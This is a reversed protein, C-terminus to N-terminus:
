IVTCPIIEAPCCTTTLIKNRKNSSNRSSCTKHSSNDPGHTKHLHKFKTKFYTYSLKDNHGFSKKKKFLFFLLVLKFPCRMNWYFSGDNFMNKFVRRTNHTAKLSPIPFPKNPSKLPAKCSAKNCLASFGTLRFWAMVLSIPKPLM